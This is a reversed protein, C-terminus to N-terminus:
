AVFEDLYDREAEIRITKPPIPIRYEGLLDGFFHLHKVKAQRSGFFEGEGAAMKVSFWEVPRHNMLLMTFGKKGEWCSILCRFFIITPLICEKQFAM